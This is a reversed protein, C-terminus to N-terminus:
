NNNYVVSKDFALIPFCVISFFVTAVGFGTSKGFKHALEIYIKFVAYINAFPIILLLLYWLPLDAIQLLVIINYIPIISAWGPKGAKKYIKWLSVITLISVLGGVFLPFGGISSTSSLETSYDYLDYDYM